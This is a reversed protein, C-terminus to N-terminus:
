NIFFLCICCYIHRCIDAAGMPLFFSLPILPRERLGGVIFSTTLWVVGNGGQNYHNCGSRITLPGGTLHPLQSLRPPPSAFGKVIWPPHPVTEGPPFTTIIFWGGYTTIVGVRGEGTAICHTVAPMHLCMLRSYIPTASITGKKSLNLPQWM